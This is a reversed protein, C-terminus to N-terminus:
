TFPGVSFVVPSLLIQYSPNVSCAPYCERKHSCLSLSHPTELSLLKSIGKLGEDLKRRQCLNFTLKVGQEIAQM